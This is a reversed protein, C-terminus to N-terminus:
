GPLGERVRRSVRFEQLDLVGPAPAVGPGGCRVWAGIEEIMDEALVWGLWVPRAGNARGQPSPSVVVVNSHGCTDLCDV